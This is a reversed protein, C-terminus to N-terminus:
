EQYGLLLRNEPIKDIFIEKWDEKRIKELRNQIVRSGEELVHEFMATDGTAGFVELCSLYALIPLELGEPGGEDLYHNVQLALEKALAVDGERLALRALGAQAEVMGSSVNLMKFSEYADKFYKKAQLEENASEHTLGLYFQRSVLGRQDGLSELVEESRELVDLALEYQSLRWETLGLNLLSYAICIKAGLSRALTLARELLRHATNFQGLSLYFYGLNILGYTEGLRNRQLQNIEIQEHILAVSQSIEGIAQYYPALNTLARALVDTDETKRALEMARDILSGAETLNGESTLLNIKMPLILSQMMLDNTEDAIELARNFAILAERHNGESIAQSGVRYYAETMLKDDELKEALDLLTNDDAHRANLEGLVGAAEDHGLTAQWLRDLDEKHILDLAKEFFSKAERMSFQDLARQGAKIYWDTAFEQQGGELYHFAILALHEQLRDGANKVIWDAIQRHYSKRHKLLITEYAEDRLLAHKFLYEQNDAISSHERHFILGRQRINELRQNIIELGDRKKMLEYLLGDWFTMGIIASRQILTKEAVPLSDIRAQLIGHLTSPVHTTKLQELQIELTDGQEIIMGEDFCMRIMEEIFFPNGGSEDTVCQYFEQPIDEVRFLIEDILSKSQLRSLRRLYIPTFGPIGEGWKPHDQYFSTRATCLIMMRLGEVGSFDAVLHSILDLTRHDLWQIDELIIILSKEALSRLYNKLYIESIESFSDSGLLSSTAPSIRFDFGVLQGIIDARDQDLFNQTGKRFKQLAEETTDTELIGFKRAFLNRLVGYTVNQTSPISRGRLIIPSIPQPKVWNRFERVLRTKGIGPDGSILVWTIEGGQTADIFLNKLAALEPERGIMTTAIGEFGRQHNRLHYPKSNKVLYTQEVQERGKVLIAGMYEVDFLGRIQQYTSHSIHVSDNPANTQLRAALNVADGLAIYELHKEPNMQGVVVLGTNIGVRVHFNELVEERQLKKAYEKIRSVIELGALVAREPDNERSLPAGFYALVGDGMIQVISGENKQIPEVMCPYADQMIDALFEPDIKEAITTSGKIDVFLITVVRREYPDMPPSVSVPSRESPKNGRPLSEIDSDQQSPLRFGCQSCFTAGTRNNAGCEPCTVKIQVGCNPCFIALDSIEYNCKPCQM